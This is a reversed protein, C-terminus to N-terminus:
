YFVKLAMEHAVGGAYLFYGKWSVRKDDVFFHLTDSVADYITSAKSAVCGAALSYTSKAQGHRGWRGSGATGAWGDRESVRYILSGSPRGVGVWSWGAAWSRDEFM